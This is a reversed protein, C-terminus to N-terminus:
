LRWAGYWDLCHLLRRVGDGCPAAIAHLEWCVGQQVTWWHAVAPGAPVNQQRSDPITSWTLRRRPYRRRRQYCQLYLRDLAFHREYVLLFEPQTGHSRAKKKSTSQSKSALMATAKRAVTMSLTSLLSTRTHANALFYLFWANLVRLRNLWLTSSLSGRYAVCSPLGLECLKEDQDGGHLCPLSALFYFSFGVKKVFIFAKSSKSMQFNKLETSLPLSM